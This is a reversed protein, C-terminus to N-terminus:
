KPVNEPAAVLYAEPPLGGSARLKKQLVIRKNLRATPDLIQLAATLHALHTPDDPVFVDPVIGKRFYDGIRGSIGKMRMFTILLDPRNSSSRNIHMQGIGKGYTTEGILVVTDGNSAHAFGDKLAAILIESASASGGNMLVAYRKNKLAPDQGNQTKITDWPVTVATHTSQDYSRYTELIYPTAVPLISNIILDTPAIGGGGNGILDIIINSFKRLYPAIDLFEFYTSSDDISFESIRVYATSATISDWGVTALTDAASSKAPLGSSSHGNENYYHTYSTGRLTDHIGTMMEEPSGYEFAGAPVKDQWFSYTKLYQWVSEMEYLDRGGPDTPYTSCSLTSLVALATASVLPIYLLLSGGPRTRVPAGFSRKKEM